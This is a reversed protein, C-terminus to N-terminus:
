IEPNNTKRGKTVPAPLMVIGGLGFVYMMRSELAFRRIHRSKKWVNRM